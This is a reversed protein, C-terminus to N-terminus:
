SVFQKWLGTFYLVAAAVVILGFLIWLFKKWAPMKREFPDKVHLRPYHAVSTLTSGFIINIKIDSNIAWGGANLVPGLNRKRLKGWALFCSPGSILLMILLIVAILQWWKLVAIGKAMAVLANGIYGVAMGIAAFIGAFKAIDFAQKKEAPKGSKAAEAAENMKEQAGAQMDALVKSDKENASKQILGVCFDWFKVYPSWFAQRLNIPNDVIKTIVADWDQGYRDYFIANKGPRLNKIGGATMVAVIDMTQNRSKSVCTCYILFMGSLGAMDAHKAMDTVKICLRCARQDVILTGAEFVAKDEPNMSYFDRFIVYNNLFCYFDRCYHVLKKVEDISNSEEELAKDQEILDLLEAQRNETQIKFALERGMGAVALGQGSVSWVSYPAFLSKIQRWTKEDLSEIGPFKVDLVKEKFAFFADMWAPNIGEFPLVADKSPSSIPCSSLRDQQSMLSAVSIASIQESSVSVSSSLKTDYAILACRMFFDDIKEKVAEYANFVDPTDDGFPFIEERKIEGEKRWNFYLDLANYFEKVQDANVGQVGSRDTVSGIKCIIQEIIDKLDPDDTSEPTIIGDGNLKTGSFIKVSDSADEISISDKELGLNALIQRASNYLRLGSPSQTDICDLPIESRGELLIDNNKLVSTLWQAAAVVEAVRIMGDNDSDLMGLTTRDFDISITPCSLVTWLKQDLEGLHAIDEGRDIKVRVVGGVSCFEWQHKKESM